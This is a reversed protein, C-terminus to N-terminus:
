ESIEVVSGQLFSFYVANKKKCSAKFHIHYDEYRFRKPTLILLHKDQVIQAIQSRKHFM